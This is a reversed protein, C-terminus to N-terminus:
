NKKTGALCCNAQKNEEKLEPLQQPPQNPKVDSFVLNRNTWDISYTGNKVVIRHPKLAPASHTSYHKAPRRSQM